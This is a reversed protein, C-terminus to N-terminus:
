LLSIEKIGFELITEDEVEVQLKGDISIGRIVGMFLANKSDKFMTPINKKHLVQLYDEELIEFNDSELIAIKEKLKIILLDLIEELNYPKPRILKLSSAKELYAPFDTQNVNLGIGIVSSAIKAGKLSNEVLVGCIKKNVALIDNPWKITVKPIELGTLVQYIALSVAFNLYRRKSIDLDSFRVFVSFILNKYPESVWISGQQGRGNVQSDTVVITFNELVSNSAMEKLFSNTSDIASLKIRKM